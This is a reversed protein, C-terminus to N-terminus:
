QTTHTPQKIEIDTIEETLDFVESWESTCEECKVGRLIQEGSRYVEQMYGTNTINDSGCAPCESM